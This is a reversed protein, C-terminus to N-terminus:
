GTLCVVTSDFWPLHILWVMSLFQLTLFWVLHVPCRQQAEPSYELEVSIVQLTRMQWGMLFFFLLRCILNFRARRLLNDTSLTHPCACTIVLAQELRCKLAIAPLLLSTPRYLESQSFVAALCTSSPESPGAPICVTCSLSLFMILATCSLQVPLLMNLFWILFISAVFCSGILLYYAASCIFLISLKFPYLHNTM